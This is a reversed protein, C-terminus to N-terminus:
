GSTRAKGKFYVMNWLTVGFGKLPYPEFLVPEFARTFLERWHGLPRPWDGRDLKALLRGISPREPLVLDLIHVHGDPTLLTSLRDLIRATAVDDVHHFFSNCLIFDFRGGGGIESATVDAAVFARGFKERAYAVYAENLDVGLYDSKAFYKTNTGPGCGVDLVRRASGVDNHRLVPEIKKDAFPAQWIRYAAVNEMVKTFSKM